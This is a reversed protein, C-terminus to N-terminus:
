GHEGEQNSYLMEEVKWSAPYHKIADRAMVRMDYPVGPTVKPDAVAYLVARARGLAELELNDFM